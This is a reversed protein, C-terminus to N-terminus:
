LPHPFHQCYPDESDKEDGTDHGEDCHDEAPATQSEADREVIEDPVVVVVQKVM